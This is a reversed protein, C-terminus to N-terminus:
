TEAPAILMPLSDALQAAVEARVLEDCGHVFDGMRAELDGLRDGLEGSKQDAMAQRDRDEARATSVSSVAKSLGDRLDDLQESVQLSAADASAASRRAAVRDAKITTELETRWATCEAESRVVEAHVVEIRSSCSSTADALESVRGARVGDSSRLELLERRLARSRLWLLVTVGLLLLLLATQVADVLGTM